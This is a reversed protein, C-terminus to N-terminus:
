IAPENAIIELQLHSAFCFRPVCRTAAESVLGSHEKFHTDGSNRCSPVLCMSDGLEYELRMLRERDAMYVRVPLAHVALWAIYCDPTATIVSIDTGASYLKQILAPVPKQLDDVDLDQLDENDM